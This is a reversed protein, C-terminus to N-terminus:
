TGWGTIRSDYENRRLANKKIKTKSVSGPLKKNRSFALEAKAIITEECDGAKVARDTWSKSEKQAGRQRWCYDTAFSRIRDRLKVWWSKGIIASVLDQKLLLELQDLFDSELSSNGTVLCELQLM